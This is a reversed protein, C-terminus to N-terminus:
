NYISNTLAQDTNRLFIDALLVVWVFKIGLFLSVRCMLAVSLIVSVELRHSMEVRLAEESERFSM